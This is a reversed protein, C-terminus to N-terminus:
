SAARERGVRQGEAWRLEGHPEDQQSISWAHTKEWSWAQSLSLLAQTHEQQRQPRTKPGANM